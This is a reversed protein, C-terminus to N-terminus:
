KSFAGEGSEDNVGKVLEGKRAGNGNRKLLESWEVCHVKLTLLVVQLSCVPSRKEKDRHVCYM